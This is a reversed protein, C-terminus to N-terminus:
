PLDWIVPTHSPSSTETNTPSYLQTSTTPSPSTMSYLQTSATNLHPYITPMMHSHYRSHQAPISPQGWVFPQWVFPQNTQKLNASLPVSAHPRINRASKITKILHLAGAQFEVVEDDTFTELTPLLGQIFAIHRNPTEILQLLKKEFDDSQGRPTAKKGKKKRPHADAEQTSNSEVNLSRAGTTFQQQDEAAARGESGLCSESDSNESVLSDETARSEFVKRLFDM